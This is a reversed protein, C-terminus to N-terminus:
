PALPVTVTDTAVQKAFDRGDKGKAVEQALEYTLDITLETAGDDVAPLAFTQNYTNPFTVIFGPNINTEDSLTSPTGLPGAEDYATVTATAQILYVKQGAKGKNVATLNLRLPKSVGARWDAIALRSTYEVSVTLPGANITRKLPVKALDNGGPESSTTGSSESQPEPVPTRPSYSSQPVPVMSDNSCGTLGGVLALAMAAVVGATRRVTQHM